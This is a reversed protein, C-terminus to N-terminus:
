FDNFIFCDTCLLIGMQSSFHIVSDVVEPDRGPTVKVCHSGHVSLFGLVGSADLVILVHQDNLYFDLSPRPMM